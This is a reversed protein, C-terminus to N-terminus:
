PANQKKLSFVIIKGNFTKKKKHFNKKINELLIIKNEM